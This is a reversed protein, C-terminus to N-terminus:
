GGDDSADKADGGDKAPPTPEANPDVCVGESCTLDGKCDSNRTCPANTGNQPADVGGCGGPDRSLGLAVFAFAFATQRVV